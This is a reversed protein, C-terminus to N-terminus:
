SVDCEGSCMGRSITSFRVSGFCMTESIGWHAIVAHAYCDEFRAPRTITTLLFSKCENARETDSHKQDEVPPM